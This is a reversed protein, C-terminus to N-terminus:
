EPGPRIAAKDPAAHPGAAIPEGHDERGEAHASRVDRDGKITQQHLTGNALEIYVTARSKKSLLAGSSVLPSGVMGAIVAGKVRRVEGEPVLEIRAGAVPGLAKPFTDGV